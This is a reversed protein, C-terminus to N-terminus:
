MTVDAVETVDFTMDANAATGAGAWAFLNKLSELSLKTSDFKVVLVTEFQRYRAGYLWGREKSGKVPVLRRDSVPQGVLEICYTEGDLAPEGCVEIASALRAKSLGLQKGSETLLHHFWDAPIGYRPKDKVKLQVLFYEPPAECDL